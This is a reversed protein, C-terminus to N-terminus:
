QFPFPRVLQSAGADLDPQQSLQLPIRHVVRGIARVNTGEDDVAANAVGTSEPERIVPEAASMELVLPALRVNAELTRGDRFQLGREGRRPDFGGALQEHILAEEQAPGKM